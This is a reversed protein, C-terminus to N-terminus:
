EVATVRYGLRPFHVVVEGCAPHTRRVGVENWDLAALRGQVAGRRTDDPVVEVLLGERLDQADGAV